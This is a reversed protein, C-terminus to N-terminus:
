AARADPRSDSPKVVLLLRGDGAHFKIQDEEAFWVATLPGSQFRQGCYHGNRILLSEATIDSQEPRLRAFWRSM